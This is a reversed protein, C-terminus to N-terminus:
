CFDALHYLPYNKSSTCSTLLMSFICHLQQLGCNYFIILLIPSTRQQPVVHHCYLDAKTAQNIYMYNPLLHLQSIKLSNPILFDKINEDIISKKFKQRVCKQIETAYISTSHKQQKQYHITNSLQCEAEMIYDEKNLIVVM